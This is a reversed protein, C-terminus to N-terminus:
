GLYHNEAFHTYSCAPHPCTLDSIDAPLRRSITFISCFVPIFKSHQCSFPFISSSFVSFGISDCPPCANPPFRIICLKLLFPNKTLNKRKYWASLWMRLFLRLPLFRLEATIM